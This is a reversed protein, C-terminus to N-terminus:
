AEVKLVVVTMDDGQPTDGAFDQVACILRDILAEASLDEACAQHITEATREFGFMEEQVNTAEAIGDSCFVIQDGSELVTEISTYVTGDRVGLPYADVQVEEVEGTAAHFHFPYPCAANALRFTRGAVDLEGMTFCVYTRNDLSSNMTGNLKTFLQEVSHGYGMETKLVGSFMMVPVAAEMAHGTVDAMCISLKGDQSFYQFFDGGVHNAPLCRGAIDFGDRQPSVAPMLGMQMEHATQLEEELEQMLAQEAMRQDRRKRVAYGSAFILGVLAIGLGGMLAWQAYPPHVTIAVEAPEGSYNLDRDVAQVQFTFAGRPLNQYEVRHGRTTKWDEDHGKLRYRYVMGGPRTKFSSGSFEFALLKISSSIALESVGVHRRDTIVAEVAVPPSVPALYCYRTLGGTTAFWLQGERDQVISHVSNSGLGDQRILSQFVQGDYRSVGGGDTAFWLVGNRDQFVSWVLNHVLGDDTTFTTWNQGDYRSVGGHTAFWLVGDRDQLIRTVSNHALGDDTTLTTWTEGDYRSVGSYWTGFWFVGDRDQFISRVLNHALGDDTTLTTWTEGDYRSVGGWTSFWLAGSRDQLITNVGNESM